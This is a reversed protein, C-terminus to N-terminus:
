QGSQLRKAFAALLPWNAPDSEFNWAEHLDIGDFGYRPIVDAFLNLHTEVPPTLWESFL